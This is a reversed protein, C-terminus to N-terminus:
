ITLSLTILRHIQCPCFQFDFTLYCPWIYTKFDTLRVDPHEYIFPYLIIYTLIMSGTFTLYCNLDFLIFNQAHSDSM